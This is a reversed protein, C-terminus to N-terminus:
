DKKRKFLGSLNNLLPNTSEATERVEEWKHTAKRDRKFLTTMEEDLEELKQKSLKCLYKGTNDIDDSTGNEFMFALFEAFDQYDKEDKCSKYISKCCYEMFFSSANKSMTFLQYINTLDDRNLSYKLPNSLVWEFYDKTKEGGLKSVDAGTEDAFLMVQSTIREVDKARIIKDFQLGICLLLLRGSIKQNCVEFQYQQMELILKENEKSPKEIPIYESIAAVLLDVYGDKVKMKMAILLIERAYKFGDENPLSGIKEEYAEEYSKLVKEAYGVAHKQKQTFWYEFTDKFIERIQKLNQESKIRAKFLIYMEEFREYEAFAENIGRIEEENMPLVLSIFYDWLHKTDMEDMQLDSLFGEINLAMNVLYMADDKFDNLINEVLDFGHKRGLSYVAKVIGFYLGGIPRDPYLEEVSLKTDKVYDSIVRVIFYVKWLAVSQGMVNLLQQRTDGSMLEAPISLNISRAIEDIDNYLTTFAVEEISSDSVAEIIRNVVISKVPVRQEQNLISYSNLLYRFITLAYENDLENIKYAEEIIKSVISVKIADSIYKNAFETAHRFQDLTIESLGDKLFSYLYYGAYLEESAERYSTQKLIFQQFEQLSDFSFSFATDLFDLYPDDSGVENFRSNIFDFVYHKNSSVYNGVSYRSGENIVGCIQSSSLEPDFDYTTFNVTKAIDLPLAYHLAAIWKVINETEDCIVIRKKEVPYKLMAAVMQKYYDLNEGIELFESITDPDIFYGKELIPENLYGPRNPNNVEKYEMSSRLSSGGYLECPYVTLDNFDTVIAHCLHNGFRGASGMYDRGLYTNLSVSTNGNKLLKFSFAAPMSAAIEETMIVGPQLNPVQYTFLSKVDESKCDSFDEDYSFIQQGDNVGDIGRMCSTYIIQHKAM